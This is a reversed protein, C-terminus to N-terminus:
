INAFKEKLETFLKIYEKKIKEYIEKSLGYKM